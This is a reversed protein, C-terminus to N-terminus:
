HIGMEGLVKRIAAEDFGTGRWRIIGSGDVLYNTPWSGIGYARFVSGQGVEAGEADRGMAVPFTFRNSSMYSEVEKAGGGSNISVIGLGREGLEDHLRQLDPFEKRCPGCGLFWFNILVARKSKFTEALSIHGGSPRQLRFDPSKTGVDLLTDESEPQDLRKASAPPRFSFVGDVIAAGVEVRSLDYEVKMLRDGGLKREKVIRTILLHDDIYLKAGFAEPEKPDRVEVVRYTVSGIKKEGLYRTPADRGFLEFHADLFLTIPEARITWLSRGEPDVPYDRYEAERENYRYLTEGNSVWLTGSPPGFEIRALNPKKLLVSATFELPKRGPNSSTIRIEGRLTRASATAARVKRLLSEAQEDARLTARGFALLTLVVFTLYRRVKMHVSGPIISSTKTGTERRRVVFSLPGAGGSRGQITACVAAATRPGSCRSTLRGPM